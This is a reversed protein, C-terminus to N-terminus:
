PICPVATDTFPTVSKTALNSLVDVIAVPEILSSPAEPSVLRNIDELPFTPIPISVGFSTNCKCLVVEPSVGLICKVFPPVPVPAVSPTYVPNALPSSKAIM